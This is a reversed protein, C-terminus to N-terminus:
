EPADPKKPKRRLSISPNSRRYAKRDRRNHPAGGTGEGGRGQGDNRTVGPATTRPKDDAKPAPAKPARWATASRGKPAVTGHPKGRRGEHGEGPEYTRDPTRGGRDDDRRPPNDALPGRFLGGLQDRLLRPRVPEVAGPKLAGLQFPGYSVRILRTVVLGVVEMARRVERNRGERLGVTLWANSGQLRDLVAEMPAFEEPGDAGAVTVGARLRELAAEDPHGNARVRYRRLWGTEPLELTRKLEGDNTLLLLGESTLDLRGVSMVRGLAPPLRDFVTDRGKEDRATTVLGVPKHYLWLRAGEYPPLTEGDVAVTDAPTVDRAPDDAIDGDVTVRGARIIDEADRRSAIGARAIM